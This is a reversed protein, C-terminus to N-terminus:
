WDAWFSLLVIKGRFSSLRLPEGDVTEGMIEPAPDGVRALQLGSDPTGKGIKDKPFLGCGVLAICALMGAGVITPVRM